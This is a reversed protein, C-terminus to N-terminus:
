PKAPATRRRAPLLVAGAMGGLILMAAIVFRLTLPEGLLLNGGAFAILPVSLQAIAAISRDLRPLVSYWIAYGLGSALAGSSAALLVGSAAPLNEPPALTLLLAALPLAWLFNATTALLPNGSVRGRLSYVAWAVAAILMLGAGAPDPVTAGPLLLVALGALGLVSGAWRAPGPREGSLLAGAFMTIQVGGFLILAGTAASLSLYAFSFAAAYCFLALASQWSGSRRLAAGPSVLPCLAGLILAGSLLRIATFSAPGIVGSDLALRNLVSNAAFATMTLATLLFLRM